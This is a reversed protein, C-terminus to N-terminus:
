VGLVEAAVKGWSTYVRGWRRTGHQCQLVYHEYQITLQPDFQM